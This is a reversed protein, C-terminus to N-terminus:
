KHVHFHIHAHPPLKIDWPGQLPDWHFHGVEESVQDPVFASMKPTPNSDSDMKREKGERNDQRSSSAGSNRKKVKAWKKKPGSGTSLDGNGSGPEKPRRHADTPTLQKKVAPDDIQLAQVDRSM